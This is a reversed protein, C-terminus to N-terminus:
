QRGIMANLTLLSFCSLISKQKDWSYSSAHALCPTVRSISVCVFLHVSCVCVFPSHELVSGHPLAKPAGLFSPSPGALLVQSLNWSLLIRPPAQKSLCTPSALLHLPFSTKWTSKQNTSHPYSSCAKSTIKLTFSIAYRFFFFVQCVIM